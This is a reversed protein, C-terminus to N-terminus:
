KVARVMLRPIMRYMTLFLISGGTVWYMGKAWLDASDTGSVLGHILAMVFLAFSAFHILRWTRHGIQKRFYFSFSVVALLYFTIQGFGVGLQRYSSSGFPILVQALNYNIYQDGLLILAHLLAFALGLLATYQHLSVAQAAGPWSRSLKSTISLGFAMSMWLLLYAVMASARSIYWYAKPQVSLLSNSLGPLLLPLVIVAVTVGAVISFLLLLLSRLPVVSQLNDLNTKSNTVELSM